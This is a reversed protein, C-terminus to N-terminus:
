SHGRCWTVLHLPTEPGRGSRTQYHLLTEQGRGGRTQHDLLTDRGAWGPEPIERTPPATPCMSDETGRIPSISISLFPKPHHCRPSPPASSHNAGRGEEQLADEELMM